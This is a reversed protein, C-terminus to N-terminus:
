SSGTKSVGTRRSIRLRSLYRRTSMMRTLRRINPAPMLDAAINKLAQIGPKEDYSVTVSTRDSDDANLMEVEKYVCLVTAMKEDFEPDKRELYYSIKHPKINSKALITHLRGKGLNSLCPYGLEDLSVPQLIISATRKLCLAFFLVEM